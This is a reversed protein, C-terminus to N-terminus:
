TTPEKTTTILLSAAHDPRYKQFFDHENPMWVTKWLHDHEDNYVHRDRWMGRQTAEQLPCDMWIKYDYYELLDPHFISCGEAILYNPKAMKIAPSIPRGPWPEETYILPFKNAHAPILIQKAFRTRDFNDWDDNRHWKHNSFSDICVLETRGPLLSKLTNALTTKGSGGFGSIAIILPRGSPVPLARITDLAIVYHLNNM